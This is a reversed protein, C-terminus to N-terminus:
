YLATYAKDYENFSVKDWSFGGDDSRYIGKSTALYLFAVVHGNKYKNYKSTIRYVKTGIDLGTNAKVFGSHKSAYYVDDETAIAITGSYSSAGGVFKVSGDVPLEGNDFKFWETGENSSGWAGGFGNYDVIFLDSM